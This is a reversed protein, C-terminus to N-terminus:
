FATCAEHSLPFENTGRARLVSCPDLAALCDYDVQDASSLSRFVRGSRFSAYAQVLAMLTLAGPSRVRRTRGQRSSAISLPPICPALKDQLM